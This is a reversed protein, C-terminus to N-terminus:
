FESTITNTFVNTLSVGSVVDTISTATSWEAYLEMTMTSRYWWRDFLYERGEPLWRTQIIEVGDTALQAKNIKLVDYVVSILDDRVITDRTYIKINVSLPISTFNVTENITLGGISPNIRDRLMDPGLYRSEESSVTDVTIMPYAVAIVPTSDAIFIKSNDYDFDNGDITMLFPYKPHSAFANRMAQILSTRVRFQIRGASDYM